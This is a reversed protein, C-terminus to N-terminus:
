GPCHQRTHIVDPDEPLGARQRRAERYARVALTRRIVRATTDQAPWLRLAGLLHYLTTTLPNALYWGATTALIRITIVRVTFCRRPVRVM